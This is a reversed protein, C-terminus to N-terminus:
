NRGDCVLTSSIFSGEQCPYINSIYKEHKLLQRVKSMLKTFNATIDPQKSCYISYKDLIGIKCPVKVWHFYFKNWLLLLTCSPSSLSYTKEQIMKHINAIKQFSNKVKDLYM